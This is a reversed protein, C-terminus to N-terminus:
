IIIIRANILHVFYKQSLKYVSTKSSGCHKLEIESGDDSIHFVLDHENSRACSLAVFFENLRTPNSGTQGKLNESRCITVRTTM